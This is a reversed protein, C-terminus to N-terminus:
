QGQINVLIDVQNAEAGAATLTYVELTGQDSGGSVQNSFALPFSFAGTASTKGQGLALQGSKGGKLQYYVTTNAPGSGTVVSTPTVTGGKTPSTVTVTGDQSQQAASTPEITPTPSSDPSNVIAAGPSAKPHERDSATTDAAQHVSDRWFGYAGAALLLAVVALAIYINRKRQSVAM